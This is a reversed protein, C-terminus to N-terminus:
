ETGQSSEKVNYVRSMRMLGSDYKSRYSATYDDGHVYGEHQYFGQLWGLNSKGSFTWKAGISQVDLPLSYDVTLIGLYRAHYRAHYKSEVDRTILCRLEGRHKTAESSWTGQWRGTIDGSPSSSFDMESWQKEFSTCGIVGLTLVFIPFTKTVTQSGHPLLREEENRRNTRARRRRRARHVM